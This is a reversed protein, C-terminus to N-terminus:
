GHREELEAGSVLEVGARRRRELEEWADLRLDSDRTPDHVIADLASDTLVSLVAPNTM